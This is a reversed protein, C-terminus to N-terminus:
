LSKLNIKDYVLEMEEKNNIIYNYFYDVNEPNQTYLSLITAARDQGRVKSHESFIKNLFKNIINEDKSCGLAKLILVQEAAVNASLYKNWLTNWEDIGGERVVTCYVGSRINVPVPTGALLYEEFISQAKSICDENGYKCVWSIM